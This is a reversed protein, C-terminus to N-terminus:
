RGTRRSSGHDRSEGPMNGVVGGARRGPRDRRRPVVAVGVRRPDARANGAARGGAAGLVPGLRSRVFAELQETGLTRGRHELYLDRMLGLWVAKARPDWIDTRLVEAVRHRLDHVVAAGREYPARNRRRALDDNIFADMPDTDPGGRMPYVSCPNVLITGNAFLDRAVEDAYGTFYSTLGEKIWFDGWHPIRVADGWWSHLVEHLADRDGNPLSLAILSAYESSYPLPASFFGLKEFPYAGLAGAYLVAADAAGDIAARTRLRMDEPMTRPYYWVLPLRHEPAGASGDCAVRRGGEPAATYCVEASDVGFPGIAVAMLYVPIPVGQRWTFARLGDAGIGSGEVFNGGDLLGNAAAVSDPPVRLEFAATAADSPHDHSPLWYRNYYPLGRTFLLTQGEVDRAMFGRIGTFTAADIVYRIRLTMTEGAALRRPLWTRLRAGTLGYPNPRGPVVVHSVAAGGVEVARVKLAEPEVHLEVTDRPALARLTVAVDAEIDASALDRVTLRIAYHEVDIGEIAAFAPPPPTATPVTAPGTEAALRPLFLRNPFATPWPTARPNPTYTPSATATPFASATSTPRDTPTATPSPAVADVPEIALAVSAEGGPDNYELRVFYDGALVRIEASADVAAAHWRDVLVQDDLWLRAGGRARVTFRYAGAALPTVRSLRASWGDAPLGEVPAGTGWDQAPEAAQGVAAQWGSLWRDGFYAVRWTGAYAPGFVVVHVRGDPSGTALLRDAGALAMSQSGRVRGAWPGAPAMPDDLGWRAITSGDPRWHVMGRDGSGYLSGDPAVDLQYRIGPQGSWARCTGDWDSGLVRFDQGLADFAHVRIAIHDVVYVTGDPAAAIENIGYYRGRTDGRGGWAALPAGTPGFRRIRYTGADGILFSGDAARAFGVPSTGGDPAAIPWQGRYTGDPDFWQVRRNGDDMAYVTGDPGTKLTFGAGMRFEGDGSGPQGWRGLLSGDAALRWITSAAMDVVYATGDPAAALGHMSPWTPAPGGWQRRFAGDAGFWQLRSNNM